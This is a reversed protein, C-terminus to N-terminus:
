WVGIYVHRKENRQLLLEARSKLYDNSKTTRTKRKRMSDFLMDKMETRITKYEKHEGLDNFEHPDNRLDFLEPRFSDHFIYKWDHTRVMTARAEHGEIGLKWYPIRSAYESESITYNRWNKVSKGHLIPLLSNGELWHVPIKGGAVEIFTPVLDISEILKNEVTGRTSNSAESPDYIILPIKVSEEHFLEKEGLWHDGLYDGHDSTFIIMTDEMRNQQELFNILKGIHDDIQKILGMYAPIVRARVDDRSFTESDEREFYLAALPHPNEKEKPHRNAPKVDNHNYISHYPNPAIYPWHPKIYSLHLCWPNDGNESIFEMAKNTMYATESDEERIRAPLNSNRLYWGSLIEGNEGEGSNAFDHWPNDSKYGKSRLYNNYALEPPPPFNSNGWLGDDREYPEFGCQSVHIGFESSPDMGLRSMGEEDPVMHTKGVLAVRYGLPKLYDGITQESVSLPIGNWNAGHTFAYRGTYFSMRSGGCIPAQCFTNNFLLGRKALADINPTELRSHGTCSLYDARLQDCMIFLINKAQPM